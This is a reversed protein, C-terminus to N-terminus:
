NRCHILCLSIHLHPFLMSPCHSVSRHLVIYCQVFQISISVACRQLAQKLSLLELETQKQRTVDFASVIMVPSMVHVPDQIQVVHISALVCSVYLLVINPMTHGVLMDVLQQATM